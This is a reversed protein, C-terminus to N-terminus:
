RSREKVRIAKEVRNNTEEKEKVSNFPDIEATLTHEGSSTVTWDATVTERQGPRLSLYHKLDELQLPDELLPWSHLAEVADLKLGPSAKGERERSGDDRIRIFRAAAIRLAALDLDVVGRILGFSAFRSGDESVEVFYSEDRRPNAWIRLDDGPRDIVLNKVFGLTISGGVGLDVFGRLPEAPVTPPGLAQSPDGLDPDAGAGPSFNVVEDPYTPPPPTEWKQALGTLVISLAVDVGEAPGKGQNRITATILVKDGPTPNEPTLAVDEIILDPLEEERVLLIRGAENNAREREKIWGGPDARVRVRHEGAPQAAMRFTVEEVAEPALRQIMQSGTKENDIHVSVFFDLADSTGQNAIVAKIMFEQGARLIEPKASVDSVILDPLDEERVLLPRGAENNDENLERIRNEPDAVIAVFREGSVSVTEAFRVDAQGGPEISEIMARQDQGGRTRLIVSVMRAPARGENRVSATIMVEDGVQPISPTWAIDEETIVLDPLEERPSPPQFPPPRLRARLFLILEFAVPAKRYERAMMSVAFANLGFDGETGLPIGFLRGGQRFRQQVEGPIGQLAEPHAPLFPDLEIIRRREILPKMMDFHIWLIDPPTGRNMQAQIENWYIEPPLRILGVDIGRSERFEAVARELAEDVEPSWAWAVIRLATEQAKPLSAATSDGFLFFAAPIIVVALAPWKKSLSKM